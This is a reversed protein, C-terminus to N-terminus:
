RSWSRIMFLISSQAVSHAVLMSDFAWVAQAEITLSEEMTPGSNISHIKPRSAANFPLVMPRSTIKRHCVWTSMVLSIAQHSLFKPVCWTSVTIEETVTHEVQIRPNVEIFFFKGSETDLLFEVTGACKYNVERAIAVAAEHLQTAVKRDLNPAPAMEVVKQHRRQVSCDREFLHMVNGHADGLVQVEIHRAKGVLKELFVEDSGFANKAERQAQELATPLQEPSEVVRMGRGGGGKSAKLMIPYGMTKALELAENLSTVAHKSGELVPVGVKKAIERAAM